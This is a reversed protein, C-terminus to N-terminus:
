PVLKQHESPMAPIVPLQNQDWGALEVAVHDFYAVSQAIEPLSKGWNYEYEVYFIAALKQRHIETLMGKVDSVGTGWPVDHAQPGAENLDKFHFEIIRGQLKKLCKIPNLGSRIWHGTDACDGIRESRGQCFKLVTDPNWYHSPKPHNHIAVMMCYEKCLKDLTEGAGEEPEAVLTEIGMAKAFEFTKRSKAVDKFLKLVGYSLLNVNSDALKKRVAERVDAPSNQDFKVNPRETSLKQGPFAEIYRLGLSATKDIAEFLTSDHFTWAQCGLHWGLKEANPAGPGRALQSRSIPEALLRSGDLGTLGIGAGVAGTTKLFTRRDM